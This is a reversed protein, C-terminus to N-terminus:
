FKAAARHPVSSSELHGTAQPGLLGQTMTATGRKGCGVGVVRQVDKWGTRSPAPGSSSTARPSGRASATSAAGRAPGARGGPSRASRYPRASLGGTKSASRSQILGQGGLRSPFRHFRRELEDRGLAAAVNSLSGLRDHRRREGVQGARLPGLRPPPPQTECAECEQILGEVGSSRGPSPGRRRTRTARGPLTADGARAVGTWSAGTPRWVPTSARGYRGM